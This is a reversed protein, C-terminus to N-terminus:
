RVTRRVGHALDQAAALLTQPTVTGVVLFHAQAVDTLLISVPGVALSVGEPDETAQPSRRLQDRLQSAVFERLPVALLATPGHGYVGVAGYYTPDGLRPLGAVRDPQVFPAFVNAGAAEDVAQGRTFSLRPDLHMHAEARSPRSPDFTVVQTTLVPRSSRAAYVDVRLPVGTTDDAWVDVRGITSRPDAPVLRLGAASRGAVRKSPLRSLESPGAGSLLRHALSTPVVDSDDPLRVSSYPLVRVRRSEYDWTVELGGDVAIDSEGTATMRDVHWDDPTRWWVRLDTREGLLRAIGSFTAATLPVRLNGQAVVEGSWGADYAARIRHALDAAGITSSRAPIARVLSPAAVLALAVAAVILWRVAPVM